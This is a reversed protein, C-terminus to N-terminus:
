NMSLYCVRADEMKLAAGKGAAQLTGNARLKDFLSRSAVGEM